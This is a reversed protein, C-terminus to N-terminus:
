RNHDQYEHVVQRLHDPCYFDGKPIRKGCRACRNVKTLKQVPKLLSTLISLILLVGAGALALHVYQQTLITDWFPFEPTFFRGLHAAVVLGLVGLGASRLFGTM